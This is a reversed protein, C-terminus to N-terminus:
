RITTTELSEPLECNNQSLNDAHMIRLFCSATKDLWNPLIRCNEWLSVPGNSRLHEMKVQLIFFIIAFHFVWTTFVYGWEVCVM